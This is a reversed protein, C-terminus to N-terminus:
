FDINQELALGRRVAEGIMAQDDVLLVMAANEDTKVDDLQLDSM